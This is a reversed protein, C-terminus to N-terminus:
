IKETFLNQGWEDLNDKCFFNVYSQLQNIENQFIEDHNEMFSNKLYLGVVIATETIIKKANENHIPSYIYPRYWERYGEDLSKNTEWKIYGFIRSIGARRYAYNKVEFELWENLIKKFKERNDKEGLDM